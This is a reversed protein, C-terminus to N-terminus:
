AAEWQVFELIGARLGDATVEVGLREEGTAFHWDVLIRSAVEPQEPLGCCCPSPYHALPSPVNGGVLRVFIWGAVRGEVVCRFTKDTAPDIGSGRTKWELPAVIGLQDDRRYTRVFGDDGAITLQGATSSPLNERTWQRHPVMLGLNGKWLSRSTSGAERAMRRKHAPDDWGMDCTICERIM